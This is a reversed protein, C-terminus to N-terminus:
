RVVLIAESAKAATDTGYTISLLYHGPSLDVEWDQRTGPNVRGSTFQPLLAQQGGRGRLWLAIPGSSGPESQGEARDEGTVVLLTRPGSELETIHDELHPMHGKIVRIEIKGDEERPHELVPLKPLPPDITNRGTWNPLPQSCSALLCVSLVALLTHLRLPTVKRVTAPSAPPGSTEAPRHTV